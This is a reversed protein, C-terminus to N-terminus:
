VKLLNAMAYHWYISVGVWELMAFLSLAVGAIGMPSRSGNARARCVARVGLVAGMLVMAEAAAGFAYGGLVVATTGTPDFALVFGEAGATALLGLFGALIFLAGIVLSSAAWEFHSTTAEQM